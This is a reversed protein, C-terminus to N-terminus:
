SDRLQDRSEDYPEEFPYTTIEVRSWRGEVGAVYWWSDAARVAIVQNDGSKIIYPSDILVARYPGMKLPRRGDTPSGPLLRLGIKSDQM